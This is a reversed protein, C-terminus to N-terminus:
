CFLSTDPHPPPSRYRFVWSMFNPPLHTRLWGLSYLWSNRGMGWRTTTYTHIHTNIHTHIINKLNEMQIYIQTIRERGKERMYISLCYFQLKLLSFCISYLFSNSLACCKNLTFFVKQNFLLTNSEMVYFTLMM